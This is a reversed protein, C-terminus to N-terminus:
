LATALFHARRGGSKSSCRRACRYFWHFLLVLFCFFVFCLAACEEKGKGVEDATQVQEIGSVNMKDRTNPRRRM